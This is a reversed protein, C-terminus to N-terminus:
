LPSWDPIQGGYLVRVQHLFQKTAAVSFANFPYFEVPQVQYWGNWLTVATIGPNQIDPRLLRICMLHSPVFSMMEGTRPSAWACIQSGDELRWSALMSMTSPKPPVGPLVESDLWGTGDPALYLLAFRDSGSADGIRMTRGTVLGALEQPAFFRNTVPQSGCCCGASAVAAFGLALTQQSVHWKM